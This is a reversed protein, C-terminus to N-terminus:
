AEKHTHPHDIFEVHHMEAHAATIQVLTKFGGAVADGVYTGHYWDVHNRAQELKGKGRGSPFAPVLFLRNRQVIRKDTEFDLIRHAGLLEKALLEAEEETAELITVPHGAPKPPILIERHHRNEVRIGGSPWRRTVIVPLKKPTLLTTGVDVEAWTGPREIM